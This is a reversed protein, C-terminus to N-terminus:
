RMASKQRHIRAASGYPNSPGSVFSPLLIDVAGRPLNSQKEDPNRPLVGIDEAVVGFMQNLQMVAARARWGVNAPLGTVKQGFTKFPVNKRPISSMVDLANGGRSDIM